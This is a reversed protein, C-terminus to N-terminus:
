EVFTYNRQMIRKKQKMQINNNHNQKCNFQMAQLGSTWTTTRNAASWNFTFNLIQIWGTTSCLGYLLRVLCDIVTCFTSSFVWYIHLLHFADSYLSISVSVSVTSIDMFSILHYSIFGICVRVRVCMCVQENRSHIFSHEFCIAIIIFDIDFVMWSRKRCHAYKIQNNNNEAGKRM